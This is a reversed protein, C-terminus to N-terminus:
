GSVGGDQPRIRRRRRAQYAGVVSHVAAFAAIWVAAGVIVSGATMPLLIDWPRDRLYALTLEAVAAEGPTRAMLACGLRYTLYWIAPFTWPNGVVTGVASAFVNGRVAWALAAAIVFHLGIFPTMSAAAGSAFGAAIKYPTGPLRGIRHGIYRGARVWGARPWLADRVRDRLTLKYRRRFM